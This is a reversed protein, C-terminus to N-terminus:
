RKTEVFGNSMFKSELKEEKISLSQNTDIKHANVGGVTDVDVEDEKCDCKTIEFHSLPISTERKILTIALRYILDDRSVIRRRSIIEKDGIEISITLAIHVHHRHAYQRELPMCM